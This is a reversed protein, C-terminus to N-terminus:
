QRRLYAILAKREADKLNLGFDHGPTTKLRARDFLQELSRVQGRHLFRRRDGVGWLAPVRYNGTGRNPSKGTAPDTGVRKLAVPKGPTGDHNHCETCKHTDFLKRGQKEVATLPAPNRPKALSRLWYAVAVAVIRPPRVQQGHATIMLSEARVILAMASNRVSAAANLYNQHRISRLDAIGTPNKMGDGTPDVHGAGWDKYEKLEAASAGNRKGDEYRVQDYRYDVSASGVVAKGSADIHTHCSSCTDAVTTTGDAKKVLMLGNVRKGDGVWFGKKRVAERSSLVRGLAPDEGLPWELFARRGLEILAEHTWPVDLNLPKLPKDQFKKGIDDVTLPRAPPNWVPLAEWGTAKGDKKELAYKSLRLSSYGNKPNVMSGELTARRFARSRLFKASDALRPDAAKKKKATTTTPKPTQKEIKPSDKAGSDCAFFLVLGVLILKSEAGGNM